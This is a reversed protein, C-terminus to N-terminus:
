KRMCAVFKLTASQQQTNQGAGTQAGPPQLAQCAKQAAQYKPTTPDLEGGKTVRLQLRGNVPDPFSKLGNSRMCQAYKVLQSSTDGGAAGAGGGQAGGAPPKDSSCGAAAIGAVALAAVLMTMKGATGSVRTTDM